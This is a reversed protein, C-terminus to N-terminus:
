LKKVIFDTLKTFLHMTANDGYIGHNRNPYYYTDFQKNAAILANTMEVAQQWHVNDDAMGHCLLYNGGRLRAAFNVPSNEEYGSANDRMTHMYRETYASDYWKWNTVPAVAIAAKFVDAGKLICSSSLYGGFSWGWIGIRQGDVYPLGSLYRAVGIQDATELEGLRLQTCKKFDRGRAGTGRNDAALVIYGKQALLQFWAGYYGDYENLVEQSNPGGYVHLLVPYKKAPDFNAPKIVWANLDVGAPTPISLFEKKVFGYLQRAKKVRQNEELMRITAGERNCITVVTPTNADSWTCTFYDFTPSFEASFTGRQLTLARPAGGNLSGEWIQRDTPSPTAAQFYFKGNKEDVGYFDTVDFTGSTLQVSPAGPQMPHLYCHTHGDRESRVIFGPRSKLFVPHDLVELDVYAADTETLLTTTADAAPDYLMLRLTDQRRNLAYVCLRNDPTWFLRPLYGDGSHASVKATKGTALDYVHATVRANQEGVKPYKFSNQRPYLADEYFSLHFIPTQAEDFRLYGIKQGDPSWAAAQMGGSQRVASFEEEYLWDPIGNIVKNKEGDTTIPTTQGTTLDRYYLNNDAVYLVRDGAPAFVATQLDDRNTLYEVTKKRRDYIAYKALKSHRYVPRAECRLMIRQSDASFSYEDAEAVKKMDAAPLWTKTSAGDKVAFELLGEDESLSLYHQGDATFNGLEAGAPYFRFYQFCDALTLPQAAQSWLAATPLGLCVIWLLKKM